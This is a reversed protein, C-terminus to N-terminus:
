WRRGKIFYSHQMEESKYKLLKYGFQLFYGFGFSLLVTFLTVSSGFFGIIMFMVEQCTRILGLSKNTKKILGNMLLNNSTDGLESSGILYWAFPILLLFFAMYPSSPLLPLYFDILLSGLMSNTITALGIGEGLYLALGIIILEVILGSIGVSVGLWNAVAMNTATIPFTGLGSQILCSISFSSLAVGLLMKLIRKTM